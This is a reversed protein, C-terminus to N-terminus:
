GPRRRHLRRPQRHATQPRPGENDVGLDDFSLQSRAVPSGAYSTAILQHLSLNRFNLAFYLFFNSERPDDCNLYVTKGAFHHRNDAVVARRDRWRARGTLTDYTNDRGFM